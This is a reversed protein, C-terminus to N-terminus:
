LIKKKKTFIGQDTVNRPVGNNKIYDVLQGSKWLLLKDTAIM